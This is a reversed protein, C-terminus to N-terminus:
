HNLVSPLTLDTPVGGGCPPEWSKPKDTEGPCRHPLPNRPQPHRGSGLPRSGREGLPIAPAPSGTVPFSGGHSGAGVHHSAVLSWPRPVQPPPQGGRHGQTGLGPYPTDLGGKRWVPGGWGRPAPRFDRWPFDMQGNHPMEEKATAVTGSGPEQGGWSGLPLAQNEWLGPRTGASSLWDALM